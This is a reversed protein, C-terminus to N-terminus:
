CTKRLTGDIFAWINQSVGDTKKNILTAYYPMHSQWIKVNSFYPLSVIYFTEMFKSITLSIRTPSMGFRREMDPLIRKPYSLRYLCLLLGTEFHVHNRNGISIHNYDGDLYQSSLKWLKECIIILHEKRFRFELIIEKDLLDDDLDNITLDNSRYMDKFDNNNNAYLLTAYDVCYNIYKPITSITSSSTKSCLSSSDSSMTVNDDTDDDSISSDEEEQMLRNTNTILANLLAREHLTNWSTNM